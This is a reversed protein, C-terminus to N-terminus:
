SFRPFSLRLQSFGHQRPSQRLRKTQCALEVRTIRWPEACDVAQVQFHVLHHLNEMRVSVTYGMGDPVSKEIYEQGDVMSIRLTMERDILLNVLCQATQEFWPLWIEGSKWVTNTEKEIGYLTKKRGLKAAGWRKLNQASEIIKYIAQEAWSTRKALLDQYYFGLLSRFRGLPKAHTRLHSVIERYRKPSRSATKTEDYM